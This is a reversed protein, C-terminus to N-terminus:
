QKSYYESCTAAYTNTEGGTITLVFRLQLDHEFEKMFPPIDVYLNLTVKFDFGKARKKLRM